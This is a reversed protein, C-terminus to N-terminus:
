IRGIVYDANDSNILDDAFAVGVAKPIFVKEQQTWRNVFANVEVRDAQAFSIFVTRRILQQLPTGWQNYISMAREKCIDSISVGPLFSRITDSFRASGPAKSDRELLRNRWGM